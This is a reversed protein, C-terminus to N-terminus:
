ETDQHENARELLNMMMTLEHKKRSDVERYMSDRDERRQCPVEKYRHNDTIDIREQGTM